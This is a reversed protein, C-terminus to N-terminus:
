AKQGIEMFLLDLLNLEASVPTETSDSVPSQTASITSGYEETLGYEFIVTSSIGNANVTGNVTVGTSGIASAADTTATPPLAMVNQINVTLLLVIFIMSLCSSMQMSQKCKRSFILCINAEKDGTSRWFVDHQM